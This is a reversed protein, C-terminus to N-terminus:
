SLHLFIRDTTICTNQTIISHKHNTFFAKPQKRKTVCALWTFVKIFSFFYNELESFFYKSSNYSIAYLYSRSAVNKSNIASICAFGHKETRLPSM